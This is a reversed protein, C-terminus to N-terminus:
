KESCPFIQLIIIIVIWAVILKFDSKKSCSCCGFAPYYTKGKEIDIAGLRTENKWFYMKWKRCDLVMKKMRSQFRASSFDSCLVAEFLTTANFENIFWWFLLSYGMEFPNRLFEQTREAGGRVFPLEHCSRIILMPHVYFILLKGFAAKYLHEHAFNSGYCHDQHGKNTM